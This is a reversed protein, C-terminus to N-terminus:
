DLIVNEVEIIFPEGEQHIPPFSFPLNLQKKESSDSSKFFARLEYEMDKSYNYQRSRLNIMYVREVNPEIILLGTTDKLRSSFLTQTLTDKRYNIKFENFLYVPKVSQNYICLWLSDPSNTKVISASILNDDEKEMPPNSYDKDINNKKEESNTCGIFVISILICKLICNAYNM